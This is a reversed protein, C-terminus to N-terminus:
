VGEFFDIRNGEALTVYAKKWHPRQGQSRGVRRGKGLYNITRVKTVRVKFLMEVASKIEHKNAEPRVRFIVQNGEETVLTAKETILPGAIVGYVNEKM